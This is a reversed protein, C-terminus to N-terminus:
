ERYVWIFVAGDSGTSAMTRGDSSFAVGNVGNDAGGGGHGVLVGLLEHTSVSWLRVRDDSDGTAVIEGSPGFAVVFATDPTELAGVQSGTVPRWLFTESKWGGSALLSETPSFDVSTVWNPHGDFDREFPTGDKVNWLRIQADMSVSAPDRSGTALVEGTRDFAVAEVWFDHGIEIPPEDSETNWIRAIGDRSSGALLSGDHSADKM